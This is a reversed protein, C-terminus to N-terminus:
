IDVRKKRYYTWNMKRIEDIRYDDIIGYQMEEYTNEAWEKAKTFDDFKKVHIKAIYRKCEQVKVYDDYVGYANVGAVGYFKTTKMM